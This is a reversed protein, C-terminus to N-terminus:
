CPAYSSTSNKSTVWSFPSHETM